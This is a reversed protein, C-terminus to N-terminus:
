EERKAIRKREREIGANIKEQELQEAEENKAQMYIQLERELNEITEEVNAIENLNKDDITHEGENTIEEFINKLECLLQNAKEFKEFTM